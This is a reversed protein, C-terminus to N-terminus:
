GEGGGDDKVGIFDLVFTIMKGPNEWFIGMLRSDNDREYFFILM